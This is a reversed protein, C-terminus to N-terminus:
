WSEEREPNQCGSLWLVTRSPLFDFKFPFIGTLPLTRSKIMRSNSSQAPHFHSGPSCLSLSYHSEATQVQTSDAKGLFLELLFVVFGCFRPVKHIKFPHWTITGMVKSFFAERSRLPFHVLPFHFGTRHDSSIQCETKSIATDEVIYFLPHVPKNVTWFSSGRTTQPDPKFQVRFGSRFYSHTQVLTPLTPIWFSGSQVQPIILSSHTTKTLGYM